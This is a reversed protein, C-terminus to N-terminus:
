KCNKILLSFRVTDAGGSYLSLASWKAVFTEEDDLDGSELLQSLFSTEHKGQAMQHKVFAFPRETLDIVTDRWRRATRKFGTGPCWDPLYRVAKMLMVGVEFCHPYQRFPLVDVTWAGPVAAKGFEDLAKTALEVLPDSKQQEITYGYAIKLIM